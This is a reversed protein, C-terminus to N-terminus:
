YKGFGVTMTRCDASSPKRALLWGQLGSGAASPAGRVDRAHASCRLFTSRSGSLRGPTTFWCSLFRM